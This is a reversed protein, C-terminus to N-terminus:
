RGAAPFLFRLVRDFRSAWADEDHTAAEAVFYELNVGDRWGRRL